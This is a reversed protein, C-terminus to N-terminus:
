ITKSSYGMTIEAPMLLVIGVGCVLGALHGLSSWNLGWFALVCTELVVFSLVLVIMALRTSGWRIIWFLGYEPRHLLGMLITVPFVALYHVLVRAAPLLLAAAAMVAFIAGSSGLLFYPSFLRAWIGLFVITGLYLLLYHGNGIRRNVANGIVWLFWMNFILHWVGNHVFGYSLLSFLGTGPGVWWGAPDLLLFALVNLLILCLNATPLSTNRRPDIAQMPVPFYM